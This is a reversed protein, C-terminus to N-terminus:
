TNSPLLSAIRGSSWSGLLVETGNKLFAIDSPYKEAFKTRLLLKPVSFVLFEGKSVTGILNSDHSWRTSSGTGGITLPTSAVCKGSLSFIRLERAETVKCFGVAALYPATPALEAAYISEFGPDIVTDLGRLPWNWLSLYPRRPTTVEASYKTTHEFLWRDGAANRSVSTIMEGKFSFAEVAALDSTRRVRIEGSWSADVLYSGDISFHIAAGEDQKRPRYSTLKEGDGTALIAIEGWTSKVALIDDDPSVAARSPHSLPHSSSLRKRNVLDAIVVNRGISAVLRESPSVCLAYSSPLKLTRTVM